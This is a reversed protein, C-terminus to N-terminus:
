NERLRVIDKQINSIKRIIEKLRKYNEGWERVDSELKKPVYLSVTKGNEKWTVYMVPHKQGSTHCACTEKGCIRTTNMLTGEIWPSFDTVKKLLNDRKKGLAHKKKSMDIIYLYM